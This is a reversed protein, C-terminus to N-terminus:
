VRVSCAGSNKVRVARSPAATSMQASPTIAYV